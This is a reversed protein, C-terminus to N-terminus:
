RYEPVKIPPRPITKPTTQRRIRESRKEVPSPSMSKKTARPPAPEITVHTPTKDTLLFDLRELRIAEELNPFALALGVIRWLQTHEHINRFNIDPKGFRQLGATKITSRTEQLSIFMDLPYTKQPTVEPWNKSTFRRQTVLDTAQISMHKLCQMLDIHSAITDHVTKLHRTYVLTWSESLHIFGSQANRESTGEHTSVPCNSLKANLHDTRQFKWILSKKPVTSLSGYADPSPPQNSVLTPDSSSPPTTRAESPESSDITKTDKTASVSVYLFLGASLVFVLFPFHRRTFM